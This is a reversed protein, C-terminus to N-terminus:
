TDAHRGSGNERSSDRGTEATEFPEDLGRLPLLEAGEFILNLGHPPAALDRAIHDGFQGVAMPLRIPQEVHAGIRAGKVVDEMRDVGVRDDRRTQLARGIPRALRQRKWQTDGMAAAVRQLGRRQLNTRSAASPPSGADFGARDPIEAHDRDLKRLDIPRAHPADGEMQAFRPVVDDRAVLDLERQM